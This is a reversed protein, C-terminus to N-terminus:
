SAAGAPALLVRLERAAEDLEDLFGRNDEELDDADAGKGRELIDLSKGLDRLAGKADQIYGRGVAIKFALEMEPTITTAVIAEQISRGSRRHVLVM